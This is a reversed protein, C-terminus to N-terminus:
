KGNVELHSVVKAEGMVSVAKSEVALKEVQSAVNGKLHAVGNKIHIVVNHAGASLSKDDVLAKRIERAHETAPDLSSAAKEPAGPATEKFQADVSEQAPKVATAIVFADNHIPGSEYGVFVYQGVRFDALARMPHKTGNFNELSTSDIATDDYTAVMGDATTVRFNFDSDNARQETHAKKLNDAWAGRIEAVKTERAAGELKSTKSNIERLMKAYETAYARKAGHVTFKHAISDISVISGDMWADIKSGFPADDTAASAAFAAAAIFCSICTLISKSIKM